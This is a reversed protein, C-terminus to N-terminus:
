DEIPGIDSCCNSGHVKDIWQQKDADSNVSIPTCWECDKGQEDYGNGECRPCIYGCSTM